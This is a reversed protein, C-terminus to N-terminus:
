RIYDSRNFLVCRKQRKEAESLGTNKRKRSTNTIVNQPVECRNELPTPLPSMSAGSGLTKSILQQLGLLFLGDQSVRAPLPLKNRTTENM